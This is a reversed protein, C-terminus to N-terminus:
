NQQKSTNLEGMKDRVPLRKERGDHKSLAYSAKCRGGISRCSFAGLLYLLRILVADLDRFRLANNIAESSTIGCSISGKM